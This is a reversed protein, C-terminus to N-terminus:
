IKVEKENIIEGIPYSEYNTNQHTTEKGRKEIRNKILKCIENYKNQRSYFNAMPYFELNLEINAITQIQREKFAEKDVLILDYKVGTYFVSKDFKQNTRIVSNMLDTKDDLYKYGLIGNAEIEEKSPMEDGVILFELHSEANQNIIHHLILVYKKGKDDFM